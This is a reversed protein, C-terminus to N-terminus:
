VHKLLGTILSKETSCLGKTNLNLRARRSTKFSSSFPCKQIPLTTHAISLILESCHRSKIMKSHTTSVLFMGKNSYLAGVSCFAGPHMMCEFCILLGFFNWFWCFLWFGFVTNKQLNNHYKSPLIQKTSELCNPNVFCICTTFIIRICVSQHCFGKGYHKM